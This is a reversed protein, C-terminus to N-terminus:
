LTKKARRPRYACQGDALTITTMSGSPSANLCEQRLRSDFAEIFANESPKGPRSIGLTVGNLYAWQDLMRGASPSVRIRAANPLGRAIAIFTESANLTGPAAPVKHAPARIPTM